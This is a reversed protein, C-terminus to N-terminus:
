NIVVSRKESVASEGGDKYVVKMAYFYEGQQTAIDEFNRAEGKIVKFKTLPKGPLARYLMFSYDGAHEYRWTIRNMKKDRVFELTFEPIPPRLGNDYTRVGAIPSPDSKLNSSDTAILRYEYYKKKPLNRDLYIEPFPNNSWHKIESWSSDVSLKRFLSLEKVDDSTSNIWTLVVATDNVVLKDFVPSVPPIVDLRRITAALSFNSHNYNNDVAVIKYYIHKTLTRKAITDHFVTDALVFSTLNSFEHKPDNSFYVRYGQLDPETGKNWNLHVVSSTDIYGSLGTPIQPAADDKVFGYFPMSYSVNGATDKSIIAYFNGNYPDPNTDLYATEAIGLEGSVAAFPGDTSSGRGVTLSRLDSDAVPLKWKIKIAKEESSVGTIIAATPATQDTAMASTVQSPASLEGFANLGTIRYEYRVYNKVSDTYYAANKEETESQFSVFPNKNMREFKDTGALAREIHYASFQSRPGADWYLEIKGDSNKVAPSRMVPMKTIEATNIFIFATDCFIGEISVPYYIKYLYNTQKKINRDVFRLGSATAVQPDNDAVFLAFGHRTLQKNYNERIAIPDIVAQTFDSGYIQSAAIMAFSNNKGFQKLWDEKPLPKIAAPTLVIKVVPKSSDDPIEVREIEFGNALQQEWAIALDPAWRLVVSDPKVQAIVKIKCSDAKPEKIGDQANSYGAFAFWSFLLLAANFYRHRKEANNDTIIMEMPNSFLKM